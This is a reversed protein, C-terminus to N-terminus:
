AVWFVLFCTYPTICKPPPITTDTKDSFGKQSFLFSPSAAYRIINQFVCVGGVSFQSVQTHTIFYSFDELWFSSVPRTCFLFWCIGEYCPPFPYHIICLSGQLFGVYMTNVSRLPGTMDFILVVVDDPRLISESFLSSKPGPDGRM